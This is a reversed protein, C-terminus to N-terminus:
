GPSTRHGIVSQYFAHMRAMAKDAHHASLDVSRRPPRERGHRELVATLAPVDERSFMDGGYDEIVERCGDADSGVVPVGADLAELMVRPLPEFRSPCVFLDLGQYIDKLDKRYGGFVIRPDGSARRRLTPEARGSGFLLLRSDAPLDAARFADILMDWGKKRTLRGAGGIVFSNPGAGFAARLAQIEDADLRRHPVLSNYAKCSLGRYGAPLSDIQWRGNCILGDMAGYAPGNFSVHLTAVTAAPPATKAILRTARRLHCHVIDPKFGAVIAALRRRTFWRNPVIEVRVRPDVLDLISGGYAARHGRRVVLLVDHGAVQANCSEATSRESGALGSSLIVHAIRV